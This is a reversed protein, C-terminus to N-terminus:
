GYTSPKQAARGRREIGHERRVAQVLPQWYETIYVLEHM